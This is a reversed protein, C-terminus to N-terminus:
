VCMCLCIDMIIVCFAVHVNAKSFCVVHFRSPTLTYPKNTHSCLETYMM